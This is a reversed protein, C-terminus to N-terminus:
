EQMENMNQKGNIQSQFYKTGNQIWTKLIPWNINQARLYMPLDTKFEGTGSTEM